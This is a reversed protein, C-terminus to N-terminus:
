QTTTSQGFTTGSAIMHALRVPEPLSAHLLTKELVTKAEKESLGHAQFFFNKFKFIEGAKAILRARKESQSLKRLARHIKEMRPRKRFVIVVPLKTKKHFTEVDLINFGAFNLGSFLAYRLQPKFKCDNVLKVAKLTVDFSDVSIKTSVVGEIRHDLRYVIGAFL